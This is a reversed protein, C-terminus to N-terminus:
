QAEKTSLQKTPLNASPATPPPPPSPTSSLPLAPINLPEEIGLATRAAPEEMCTSTTPPLYPHVLPLPSKSVSTSASIITFPIEPVPPGGLIQHFVELYILLTIVAILQCEELDLM